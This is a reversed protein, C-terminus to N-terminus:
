RYRGQLTDAAANIREQAELLAGSTLQGWSGRVELLVNLMDIAAVFAVAAFTLENGAWRLNDQYLAASPLEIRFTAGAASDRSIGREADGGSASQALRYQEAVIMKTRAVEVGLVHITKRREADHAEALARRADTLQNRAEILQQHGIWYTVGGAVLAALGAFITGYAAVWAAHAASITATEAATM